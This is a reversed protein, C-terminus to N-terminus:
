IATEGSRNPKSIREIVHATKEPKQLRTAVDAQSVIGVICNDEDVVPIRRVQRDAMLDLARQFNDEAHCTVLDHAMVEKIRVAKPQRGEAVVKLALDRDTVIGLLKKSHLDEVVPVSGVDESKMLGAATEVTDNPLCCAPNPTMMERCTSQSTSSLPSALLSDPDPIIESTGSDYYGTAGREGQGWSMQGRVPADPSPPQPGSAPYVGSGAVQDVRGKGGGPLGSRANRSRPPYKQQKLNSRGNLRWLQIEGKSLM